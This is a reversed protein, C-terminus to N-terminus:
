DIEAVLVYNDIGNNYINIFNCEIEEISMEEIEPIERMGEIDIGGGEELQKHLKKAIESIPKETQIQVDGFFGNTDSCNTTYWKRGESVLICNDGNNNEIYMKTM